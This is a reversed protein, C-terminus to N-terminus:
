ERSVLNQARGFNLALIGPFHTGFAALAAKTPRSGQTKVLATRIGDSRVNDTNRYWESSIAVFKPRPVGISAVRQGYCPGDHNVRNTPRRPEDIKKRVM